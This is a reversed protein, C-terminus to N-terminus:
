PETTKRAKKFIFGLVLFGIATAALQRFETNSIMPYLQVQLDAATYAIWEGSCRVTGNTHTTLTGDCFIFM